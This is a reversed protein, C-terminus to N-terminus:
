GVRARVMPGLLMDSGGRPTAPWLHAHSRSYKPLEHLFHTRVLNSMATAEDDKAAELQHQVATKVTLFTAITLLSGCSNVGQLCVAGYM